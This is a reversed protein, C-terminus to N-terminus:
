SFGFYYFCPKREGAQKGTMAGQLFVESPSWDTVNPDGPRATQLKGPARRERSGVTRANRDIEQVERLHAM